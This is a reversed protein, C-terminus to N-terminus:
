CIIDSQVFLLCNSVRPMTSQRGLGLLGAWGRRSVCCGCSAQARCQEGSGYGCGDVLWGFSGVPQCWMVSPQCGSVRDNSWFGECSAGGPCWRVLHCARVRLLDDRRIRVLLGRRQDHCLSRGVTSVPLSFLSTASSPILCDAWM